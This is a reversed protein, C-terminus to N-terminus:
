DSDNITIIAYEPALDAGFNRVWINRGGDGVMLGQWNEFVQAPDQALVAAKLEKGMVSAYHKLFWAQNQIIKTTAGYYHAPFHLHAALWAKDDAGVAKQLAVVFAVKPPVDDEAWAGGLVTLQLVAACGIAGLWARLAARM